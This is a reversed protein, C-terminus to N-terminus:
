LMLELQVVKQNATRRQAAAVEEGDDRFGRLPAARTKKEWEANDILFPAFNADLSLVYKLNQRWSEFTTITEEKSLSWQKPARVAAM